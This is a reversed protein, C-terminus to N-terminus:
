NQMSKSLEHNLGKNRSLAECFVGVLGLIAELFFFSVGNISNQTPLAATTQRLYYLFRTAEIANRM